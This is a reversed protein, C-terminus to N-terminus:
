KWYAPDFPYYPNPGIGKKLTTCKFFKRSIGMFSPINYYMNRIMDIKGIKDMDELALIIKIAEQFFNLTLKANYM